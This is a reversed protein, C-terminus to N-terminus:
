EVVIAYPDIRLRRGGPLQVTAPDDSYNLLVLKGNTLVAWYTEEPKEMSLARRIESRIAPMKRLQDRVFALYYRQDPHWGYIVVRGKGTDGAQWRDFIASDGEVTSLPVQRSGERLPYIVVGGSRVWQDIRELVPKEAVRGALFL